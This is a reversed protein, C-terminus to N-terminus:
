PCDGSQSLIIQSGDNYFTLSEASPSIELYRGEPPSFEKVCNGSRIRMPGIPYTYSINNRGNWTIYAFGNETGQRPKFYIEYPKGLIDPEFRITYQFGGGAAMATNAASAFRMGFWKVYLSEKNYLEANQIFFVTFYAALVIILFVSAYMFFETSVQAKM